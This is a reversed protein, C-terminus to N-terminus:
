FWANCANDQKALLEPRFNYALLVKKFSEWALIMKCSGQFYTKKQALRFAYMILGGFMKPQKSVLDM